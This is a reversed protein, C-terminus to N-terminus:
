SLVEEIMKKEIKKFWLFGILFFIISLLITNLINTFNSSLTQNNLVCNRFAEIGHTIPFINGMLSLWKPLFDIPFSIGCILSILFLFTNQTYFTDHSYVMITSVLISISFCSFSIFLTFLITLIVEEFNFRAGFLIGIGFIVSFEFCSRRLQELYCGLFYGLRSCPSLLLNELTGERIETIMSRGVNMITSIAIILCSSGITIYSVYSTTNSYVSFSESLDKNFLFYYAFLPFVINSIGGSIRGIIFSIPYARKNTIRNKKYTSKIINIM